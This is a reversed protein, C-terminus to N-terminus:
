DIRVSTRQMLWDYDRTDNEPVLAPLKGDTAGPEHPYVTGESIWKRYEVHLDAFAVNAGRHHYAAPLEFWFGTGPKVLFYGDRITDPHEDIFVFIGSPNAIESRRFYQRYKPNNINTGYKTYGGAYGVMANMSYSRTRERWGADRQAASLNRDSPCRFPSVVGSCYPGLGGRALQVGNTNHPELGWSMVNNAWNQFKGSAITYETDSVGYNYPLYDDYDDAYLNWALTLQRQNNLCAIAYGRSKATSLAPLILGALIAIIGAVVLAEILTFGDQTGLHVASKRRREIRMGAFPGLVQGMTSHPWEVAGGRSRYLVNRAANM